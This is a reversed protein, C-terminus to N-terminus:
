IRELLKRILATKLEMQEWDKLKKMKLATLVTQIVTAFPNVNKKLDDELQNLVKYTRYRYILECRIQTYRYEAPNYGPRADTLIVLTTVPKKYRDRLRYFYQFIREPLEPDNYGQVEVHILFWREKWKTDFVKILKDVRRTQHPGDIYPFLDDLEKDLFDWGKELDFFQDPYFFTLFDTLLDEIIGKWLTDNTIM